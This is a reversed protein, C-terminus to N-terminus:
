LSQGLGLRLIINHHKRMLTIVAGAVGSDLQFSVLLIVRSPSLSTHTTDAAPQYTLLTHSPCCFRLLSENRLFPRFGGILGGVPGAGGAGGGGCM